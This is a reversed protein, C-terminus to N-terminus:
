QIKRWSVLDVLEVMALSGLGIQMSISLADMLIPWVSSGWYPRILCAATQPEEVNQAPHCPLRDSTAMFLVETGQGHNLKNFQDNPM